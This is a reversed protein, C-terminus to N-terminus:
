LREAAWKQDAWQDLRTMKYGTVIKRHTKM